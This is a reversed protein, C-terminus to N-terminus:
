QTKPVAIWCVWEGQVMVVGHNHKFVDHISHTHDAIWQSNGQVPAAGTQVTYDGSPINVYYSGPGHQHGGSGWTNVPDSGQENIKAVYAVFGTTSISKVVAHMLPDFKNDHVLSVIVAPNDTFPTTFTVSIEGNADTQAAGAQIQPARGSSGGLGAVGGAKVSIARELEDLRTFAAALQQGLVPRTINRHQPPM